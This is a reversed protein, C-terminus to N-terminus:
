GISITEGPAAGDVVLEGSRIRATLEDAPVPRSFYYGQGLLCGQSALYRWEKETEIGEALTKMGLGRGLEIVATVISAAEPDRHVASVFARDIKLIDIPLFRLRSLSSYGTGFDDLALTLGRAHLESLVYLWRDFDKVASSETIEVVIRRPDVNGADLRDLIRSAIDPQWLQRPSLNFGIELPIHEAQWIADQRSLEEVVWDGITEILGLEESLPIFDNPPVLTGDPERWRILAEVGQMYGTALDVVPQYHLEWQQQEVAKRLRTVLSLKAISDVGAATALIYGGVGTKKAEAMAAEAGLLLDNRTAAHQPFLSIGMSASLYLETDAVVFPERLSDQVRGAVGEATAIASDLEGLDEREIDALLLLFQDGSMRAVLDTERTAERLREALLSLVEDGAEHGLSDNVLRFDDIDLVIVSVSGDHRGARALALDLFEDFMARNPLGTREDHYALFAAQEEALKQATIDQMFGQSYAASGDDERVIRAVDRVWVVDGNRHLMRYELDFPEGTVNHRNNEAVARERDEPHLVELWMDATTTFEEATYGLVEEIQPSMYATTATDDLEDVYTIAPINEVLARHRAEADRRARDAVERGIATGLHSAMVRLMDLDPEQWIRERECDDFGMFGWWKEGAFIPVFCYSYIGEDVMDELEYGKVQSRGRQIIEGTPMRDLWDAYGDEYPWDHNDARSITAETGVHCWEFRQDMLVRGDPAVANEFVYARSAQGATGLKQLVEDICDEWSSNRLFRETAFSVSRMITERRRLIAQQQGTRRAILLIYVLLAATLSLLCVRLILASRSAAPVAVFAAAVAAAFLAVALVIPWRRASM